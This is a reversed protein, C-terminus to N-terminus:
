DTWYSTTAGGGEPFFSSSIGIHADDLWVVTGIDKIFGDPAERTTVNFLEYSGDAQLLMPGQSSELM